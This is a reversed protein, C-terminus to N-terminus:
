TGCILPILFHKVKKSHSIESVMIDEPFMQTTAYEVTVKKNTLVSYYVYTYTICICIYICIYKYINM